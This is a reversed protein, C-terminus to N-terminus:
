IVLGVSTSTQRAQNFFPSEEPAVKRVSAEHRRRHREEDEKSPSSPVYSATHILHRLKDMADALNLQQSRTKDSRLVLFGDVTISTKYKETIQEKLEQSLWDATDVHFRLDVKTNVKNVNQGGPGSSRSYLVQVKDMPVYGSFNLGETKPPQRDVKRQLCSGVSTYRSWSLSSLVRM